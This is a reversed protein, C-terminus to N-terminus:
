FAPSVSNREFVLKVPSVESDTNVLRLKYESDGLIITEGESTTLKMTQPTYLNTIDNGDVDAVITIKQNFSKGAASTKMNQELVVSSANVDSYESDNDSYKKHLVKKCVIVKKM